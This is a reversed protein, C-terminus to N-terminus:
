IVLEFGADAFKQQYSADAMAIDTARSIQDKITKPTGTPVFLGLLTQSVLGPYGAEIATPIDSATLLRNPSTVALIRLKGSRHLELVQGTVAPIIMAVHGAIADTIAPGAGRYPVHGIDPAGALSKFMEGTLHNLSGAGATGYSLKGPNAKAYDVLEKLTHAPVSPNVAIAFCAVGLISIPELDKLPDYLPRNKLVLETLHIMSAGMLVTYGDAAARAVTAAGLSGGGGGQNEVVVTGLLPKMKDAWPRGVADFVGGPPFPVVLRIPRDPYPSQALASYAMFIQASLWALGLAFLDRRKM